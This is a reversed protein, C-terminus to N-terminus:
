GKSKLMEPAWNELWMWVEKTLHRKILQNGRSRPRYQEIDRLVAVMDNTAEQWPYKVGGDCRALIAEIREAYQEVKSM